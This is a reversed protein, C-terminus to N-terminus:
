KLCEKNSIGLFFKYTNFKKGYLKNLKKYNYLLGIVTAFFCVIFIYNNIRYYIDLESEKNNTKLYKIHLSIIYSVVLLILVFMLIYYHTRMLLVFSIYYLITHLIISIVHKNEHVDASVFILLTLFGALHKILMNTSLKVRLGCGTTDGIFNALLIFIFILLYNINNDKEM